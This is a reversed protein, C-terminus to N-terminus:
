LGQFGALVAIIGVPMDIKLLMSIRRLNRETSDRLSSAAAYLLIPCVLLAIYVTYVVGFYGTVSPIVVVVALVTLVLSAIRCATQIGFSTAITRIDARRDGNVDAADKLIERGLHFLAAFVAPVMAQRVCDGAIGGYVFALGGLVAVTINGALPVGKLFVNYAALLFVASVAIIIGPIGLPISASIGAATVIIYCAAAGKVTVIGSPIPRDPENVRDTAVDCIDNLINGAALILSASVAGYLIRHVWLPTIGNGISAIFEIILTMPKGGIIGGCMVSLLCILMNVPRLLRFYGGITKM